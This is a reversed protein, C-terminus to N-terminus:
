IAGAGNEIMVPAQIFGKAIEVMQDAIRDFRVLVSSDQAQQAIGAGAEVDNRTALQKTRQLGASVWRFASEGPHSFRALFDLVGEFLANIGEVDLAFGFEIVDILDCRGFVLARRNGKSHIRIDLRLRMLVDGSAPALVLEANREFPARFNVLPRAFHRGPLDSSRRTPFSPLDLLSSSRPSCLHMP